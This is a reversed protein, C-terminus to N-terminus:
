PHRLSTLPQARAARRSPLYCAFLAVAILLLSVGLFTPPDTATVGYILGSILRSLVVAGAVGLVAGIAVLIMGQGLMLKLIDRHQAGLAMRLGIERQRQDALYSMVGYIGVTALILALAALLSLLVAATQPGWLASSLLQSITRADYFSLDEDLSQVAKQVTPLLAAPDGATRGHLTV